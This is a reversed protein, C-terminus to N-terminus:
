LSSNPIYTIILSQEPNEKTIFKTPTIIDWIPTNLEIFFSTPQAFGLPTPYVCVQYIHLNPPWVSPRHTLPRITM